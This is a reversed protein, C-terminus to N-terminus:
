TVIFLYLATVFNCVVVLLKTGPGTSLGPHNRSSVLGSKEIANKVIDDNKAKAPAGYITCTIVSLM